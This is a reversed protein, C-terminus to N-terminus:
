IKTLISLLLNLFFPPEPVNKPFAKRVKTSTGCLGNNFHKDINDNLLKLLENITKM